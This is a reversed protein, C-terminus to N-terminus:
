MGRWRRDRRDVRKQLDSRADNAPLPEIKYIEGCGNEALVAIRVPHCIREKIEPILNIKFALFEDGEALGGVKGAIIPLTKDGSDEGKWMPIEISKLYKRDGKM